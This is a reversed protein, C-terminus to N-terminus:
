FLDKLTAEPKKKTALVSNLARLIRAAIDDIAAECRVCAARRTM